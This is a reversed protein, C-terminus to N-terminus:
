KTLEEIIVTEEVVVGMPLYQGNDVIIQPDEEYLTGNKVLTINYKYRGLVGTPNSSTVQRTGNGALTFPPAKGAQLAQFAITLACGQPATWTVTDTNAVWRRLAWGREHKTNDAPRGEKGDDWIQLCNFTNSDNAADVWITHNAM